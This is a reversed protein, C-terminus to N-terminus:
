PELFGRRIAGVFAAVNIRRQEAYRRSWERKLELTIVPVGGRRYIGTSITHSAWAGLSIGERGVDQQHPYAGSGNSSGPVHAGCADAIAHM